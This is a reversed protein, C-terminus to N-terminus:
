ENMKRIQEALMEGLKKFHDNKEVLEGLINIGVNFINFLLATDIQEKSSKNAWENYLTQYDKKFGIIRKDEPM